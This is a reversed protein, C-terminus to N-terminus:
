IVSCFRVAEASMFASRKLACEVTKMLFGQYDRFIKAFIM